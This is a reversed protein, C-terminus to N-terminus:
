KARSAQIAGNATRVFGDVDEEFPDHGLGDMSYLRLGAGAFLDVLKRSNSIPVINDNTGHVISVNVNELSMVDLFLKIDGGPYAGYGSVVARTFALLGAELRNAIAPWRFRKIDDDSLNNADGWASALGRSWFRKSSVLRRLGYQLPADIITRRGFRAINRLFGNNRRRRQLLEGGDEETISDSDNDELSALSADNKVFVAPSVLVVDIRNVNTNVDSSGALELAMRLTSACGMSHGFMAVNQGPPSYDVENANNSQLAQLVLTSGLGASVAMSYRSPDEVNPRETFGFGVADHALSVKANLSRSLEPLSPLWSLSSAGFGHSCHLVSYMNLNLDPRTNSSRSAEDNDFRLYHVNLPHDVINELNLNSFKTNQITPRLPQLRSLKSPLLLSSFSSSEEDGNNNDNNTDASLAFTSMSALLQDTTIRSPGFSVDQAITYTALAMVLVRSIFKFLSKPLVHLKGAGDAEMIAAIFASAGVIFARLIFPLPQYGPSISEPFDRIQNALENEQRLLHHNTNAQSSFSEEEEEEAAASMQSTSISQSYDNKTPFPPRLRLM